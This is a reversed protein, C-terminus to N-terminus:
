PRGLVVNDHSADLDDGAAPGYPPTQFIGDSGSNWAFFGDRGASEIQIAKDGTISFLLERGWGDVLAAGRLRYTKWTGGDNLQCPSPKQGGAQPSWARDQRLRQAPADDSPVYIAKLKALETWTSGPLWFKLLAERQDPTEVPTVARYNQALAPDVPPSRVIVRHYEAVEVTEQSLIGLRARPLGYLGPLDPDSLLDDPLLLHDAGSSLEAVTAGVLAMGAQAVSAHGTDARVFAARPARSGTLPHETPAPLGGRESAKLSLAQQIVQEIVSTRSRKAAERMMNAVVLLMSALLAIIAVVILLEILTFGGCPRRQPLQYWSM